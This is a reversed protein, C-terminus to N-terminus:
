ASPVRGRFLRARTHKWIAIPLPELRISARAATADAIVVEVAV